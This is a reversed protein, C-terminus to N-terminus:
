GLPFSIHAANIYTSSFITYFQPLILIQTNCIKDNMVNHIPPRMSLEGHNRPVINGPHVDWWPV